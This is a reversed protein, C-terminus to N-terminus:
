DVGVPNWKEDVSFFLAAISSFDKQFRRYYVCTGVFTRLEIPNKPSPWTKIAEVKDGQVAIGKESVIHGFFEVQTEFL